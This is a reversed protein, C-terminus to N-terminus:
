WDVKRREKAGSGNRLKKVVIFARVAAREARRSRDDMFESREALLEGQNVDIAKRVM